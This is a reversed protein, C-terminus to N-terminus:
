LFLDPAPPSIAKKTAFRLTPQSLLSRAYGRIKALEARHQKHRPLRLRDQEEETIITIPVSLYGIDCKGVSCKVAQSGQFGDISINSFKMFSTSKSVKFDHFTRDSEEGDEIWGLTVSVCTCVYVRHPVHMSTCVIASQSAKNNGAGGGRDGSQVKLTRSNSFGDIRSNKIYNPFTSRRMKPSQLLSINPRAEIIVSM